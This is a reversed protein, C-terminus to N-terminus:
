HFDGMDFKLSIRGLLIPASVLDCMSSDFHGGYLSNRKEKSQLFRRFLFLVLVAQYLPLPLM